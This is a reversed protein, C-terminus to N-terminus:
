DERAALRFNSFAVMVLWVRYPAGSDIWSDITRKLILRADLPLAAIPKTLSQLLAIHAVTATLKSHSM